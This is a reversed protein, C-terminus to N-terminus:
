FPLSSRELCFLWSRTACLFRRKYYTLPTRLTRLTHYRSCTTNQRIVSCAQGTLELSFQMKLLKIPELHNSCFNSSEQWNCFILLLCARLNRDVIFNIEFNDDDEGWPNLLSEAVKCWGTLFIFQVITMFPVYPYLYLVHVYCIPLTFYDYLICKLSSKRFDLMYQLSWFFLKIIVSTLKSTQLLCITLKAINKAFNCSYSEESKTLLLKGTIKPIKFHFGADILKDLTPFRRKMAPSVIRLAMIQIVMMYRLMTKRYTNGEKTSGKVYSAILLAVDDIWGIATFLMQIWRTVVHTVFYGLMYTVPLLGGYQEFIHCIKEFIDRQEEELICRYIVSMFAYAVCWIALEVVISKWLSGKWRFIIRVFSILSTNFADFTYTVTM